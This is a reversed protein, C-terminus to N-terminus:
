VGQKDSPKIYAFFFLGILALMSPESFQDSLIGDGLYGLSVSNNVFEGTNNNGAYYIWLFKSM